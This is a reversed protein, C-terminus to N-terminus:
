AKIQILDALTMSETIDAASSVLATVMETSGYKIVEGHILLRHTNTPDHTHQMNVCVGHLYTEPPVACVCWISNLM